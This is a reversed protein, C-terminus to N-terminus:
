ENQYVILNFEENDKGNNNVGESPETLNLPKEEEKYSYNPKITRYTKVLNVVMLKIGSNDRIDGIMGDNIGFEHESFSLSEEDKIIAKDFEAENVNQSKKFALPKITKKEM